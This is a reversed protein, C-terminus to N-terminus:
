PKTWPLTIAYSAAVPNELNELEHYDIVFEADFVDATATNEFQFTIQIEDNFYSMTYPYISTNQWQGNVDSSIDDVTHYGVVEEECNIMKISFLVAGQYPSADQYTIIASAAIERTLIDDEYNDCFDGKCSSSIISITFAILLFVISTKRM